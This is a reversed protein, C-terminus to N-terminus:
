SSTNWSYSQCNAFNMKNYPKHFIFGEHQLRHVVLGISLDLKILNIGIKECITRFHLQTQLCSILPPDGPVLEKKGKYDIFLFKHEGSPLYLCFNTQGTERLQEPSLHIVALHTWKKASTISPGPLSLKSILNAWLFCASSRLASFLWWDHNLDRISLLVEYTPCGGLYHSQVGVTQNCLLLTCRTIYSLQQKPPSGARTIWEESNPCSLTCIMSSNVTYWKRM